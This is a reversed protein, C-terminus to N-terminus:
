PLTVGSRRQLEAVQALRKEDLEKKRRENDAQMEEKTWIKKPEPFPINNAEFWAEYFAIKGVYEEIKNLEPEVIEKYAKFEEELAIMKDRRKLTESISLDIVEQSKGETGIYIAPPAVPPKWDKAASTTMGVFEEPITSNFHGSDSTGINKEKPFRRDVAAQVEKATPVKDKAVEKWIEQQVEPLLKVIPRLQSEATPLIKEGIPSLNNYTTAADMLRYAHTKKYGFEVDVAEVFTKYGKSLFLEENQIVLLEEGIRVFSGFAKVTEAKISAVKKDFLLEEQSVLEADVQKVIENKM